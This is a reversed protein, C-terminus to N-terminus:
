KEIDFYDPNEAVYTNFARVPLLLRLKELSENAEDDFGILAAQKVYAKLLKISNPRALLGSVIISYSKLRDTSNSSFFNAAGVLGEEFHINATSLFEFTQNAEDTKGSKWDQLAHLYLLENKFAGKLPLAKNLDQKQFTDEDLESLLMMNLLLIQDYVNKDTLKLGKVRTIIKFAILPEDQTYWKKSLDLIARAKLEENQISENLRWFLTTDSYPIKYRSYNYKDVDSFIFSQQQNSKLITLMKKAYAAQTTDADRSISDLLILANAISDSEMNAFAEHFLALAQNKDKAMEFYNAAIQPNNQELAWTGLLNFYKARGTRYAVERTLDFAKRIQGQAYYAHSAAVLISEKFFDNSPKRVLEIARSLMATDIKEAQNIFYNCLLVAKTVSLTTDTGLELDLTIPINQANALALANARPGEDRSGILQLLSDAPYSIKFKASAALLNTEAMQKASKDKRAEQFLFLASDAVKLNTYALGLANKIIGSEPFKLKANDLVEISQLNYGSSQYSDSLNIFSFETPNGGNAEVLESRQKQPDFRAAQISALAYHAHHNQNRYFVSKNYFGEAVQYDGQSYFLDGYGNYYTAYIQNLQSKYNTDFLLFALCCFLGMLRFTFYPMTTPKYLVKAVQLNKSLMDVFNALIYAFFIIGYGLHSYIIVDRIVNIATDSATAFLYGTTTLAILLLALNFYIGLPNAPLISAYQNERQRFGWVSLIASITFLLFFDLVWIKLDLYGIKIAYAVLLNILYISNIILFHRLSKSQRTGQTIINIFAAPIEHGIMLIFVLTLLIGIAYGSVSIALLPDPTQSYLAIFIGLLLFLISFSLLRLFFGAEKRFAHFYYALAAVIIIIAVSPIKNILGFLELAELRLSIIVLCFIGMGIMFWFRSLTTIITLIVVISIILATLFIYSALINPQLQSGSVSEYILFNDANVPITQLGVQFSRVPIEETQLEQYTEWTLLPSPNQLYSYWFFGVSLIALLSLICFFYQYPKVWSKWFQIALM